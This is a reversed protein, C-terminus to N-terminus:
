HIVHWEVEQARALYRLGEPTFAVIQGLGLEVGEPGWGPVAVSIHPEFAYLTNYHLQHDNTVISTPYYGPSSTMGAVYPKTPFFFGGLLFRRIFMPPPHFGFEADLVGEELTIKEAAAVIEKGTRGIQFEAAILDQVRNVKALAEQLEIPVETQGDELVYAHQHSDTVLGLLMIDTDCSIIDGRRITVDMDNATRGRAFYEPPDGYKEINAPRRKVCITPHNEHELGLELMRHRFWWNLDATTTVDPIVVQNSFGEAIVTSAVRQVLRYVSIQEASVTELWRVGLTWSSITRQAYEPGLAQLMSEHAFTSIAIRQPDRQRVIEGIEAYSAPEIYEIDTGRDHFLLFSPVEQSGARVHRSPLTMGESNAPLLSVFVPSENNFFLEGENSRVIWMDVGQERMVQPLVHDRKWQWFREMIQVRQRMSPITDIDSRDGEGLALSAFTMFVFAMSLATFRFANSRM